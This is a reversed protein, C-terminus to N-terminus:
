NDSNRLTSEVEKQLDSISGTFIKGNVFFTPTASVGLRNADAKDLLIKQRLSADSLDNQFQNIDLSMEEAYSLFIEQANKEEAWDNQHMFLRDAMGWFNGQKGAAEAALAALEANRHQALPYHRYQLQIEEPNQDLMAQISPYTAACAPCQFDAFEVIQVVPNKGGKKYSEENILSSQDVVQGKSEKSLFYLGGFVAAFTVITILLIIKWEEKM